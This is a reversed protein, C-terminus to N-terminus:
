HLGYVASQVNMAANHKIKQFYSVYTEESCEFRLFSLFTEYDMFQRDVRIEGDMPSTEEFQILHFGMYKPDNKLLNDFRRFIKSQYPKLEKLHRKEEIMMCQGTKYNSWIYDLNTAVYGLSSDIEQKRRLWQSFETGTGDRCQQTM